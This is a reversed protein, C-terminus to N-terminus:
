EHTAYLGANKFWGLADRSTVADLAAGLAAYLTDKARAAARRLSAKTKSWLQEIPTYDPSYPPLWILRAGTRRVAWAAARHAEPNDWVVM